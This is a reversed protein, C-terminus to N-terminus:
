MLYAYMLHVSLFSGHRDDVRCKWWGSAVGDRLRLQIFDGEGMPQDDLLVDVLVDETDGIWCVANGIDGIELGTLSAILAVFDLLDGVVLYLDHAVVGGRVGILGDWGNEIDTDSVVPGPHHGDEGGDGFPTLDGLAAREDRIRGGATTGVRHIEVM